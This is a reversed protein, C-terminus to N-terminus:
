GGRVCWDCQENVGRVDFCVLSALMCGDRLVIKKVTEMRCGGGFRYMGKLLGM